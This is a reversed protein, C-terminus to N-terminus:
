YGALEIASRLRQLCRARVPGISGMPILLEASIERYSS